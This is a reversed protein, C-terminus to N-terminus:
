IQKCANEPVPAIAGTEQGESGITFFDQCNHLWTPELTKTKFLLDLDKSNSHSRM